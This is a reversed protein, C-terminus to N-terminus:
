KNKKRNFLNGFRKKNDDIYYGGGSGYNGYGYGYGYGYGTGYGYGYGYNEEYGYGYAFGRNAVVDNVIICIRPMKGTVYLENPINLQQKYTYGQRVIYLTLDAFKYLLQADAVLGIPSTDIFVYDFDEKLRTFLEETQLLLILEAPNPPIPGSPLVFLNEDIGSPVIIDEYRSKGIAYNSFGNTNDIGLM